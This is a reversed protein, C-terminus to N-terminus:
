STALGPVLVDNGTRWMAGAISGVDQTTVLDANFVETAVVPGAGMGVLQDFLAGFDVIGDGPLARETMAEEFPDPGPTAIADCVQVYGIREPPISALLDPNPGGPQRQWHWTDVLIGVAPGLPEVLEWTTALDPVGTWPLFEVTVTIGADAAAAGVLGLRDRAAGLDGIEPELCCAGIVTAGTAQAAGVLADAEARVAADDASPWSFAAEVVSVQLGLDALLDSAGDLPGLATLHQLWFSAHTFGAAAAAETAARVDAPTAAMPDALLTAPCIGLGTAM